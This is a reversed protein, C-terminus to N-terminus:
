NTYHSAFDNEIKQQNPVTFVTFHLKVAVSCLWARLQTISDLVASQLYTDCVADAPSTHQRHAPINM